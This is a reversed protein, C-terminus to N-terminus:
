KQMLVNLTIRRLSNQHKPQILESEFVDLAVGFFKDDRLEEGLAGQDIIVVRFVNMPIADEEMAPIATKGILHYMKDTLLLTLIIVGNEQFVKHFEDMLM